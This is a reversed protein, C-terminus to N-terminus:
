GAEGVTYRETVHMAGGPFRVVQRRLLPTGDADLWLTADGSPQDAVTIAFTVGQAAEGGEAWELADVEVWERVGGDAHDPPTGAVLRALNHLIGMRTIGLVVAERLAPPTAVDFTESGNGGLMRGGAAEFALEVPQGGFHGIAELTLADDGRVVLRGELDATFAGEATVHFGLAIESRGFWGDELAVFAEEATQGVAVGSTSALIAVVGCVGCLRNVM